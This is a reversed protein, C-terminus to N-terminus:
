SKYMELISFLHYVNHSLGYQINRIAGYLGIDKLIVKFNSLVFNIMRSQWMKDTSYTWRSTHFNHAPYQGKSKIFDNLFISTFQPSEGLSFDKGVRGSFLGTLYRNPSDQYPSYNDFSCVPFDDQNQTLSWEIQYSVSIRQLCLLSCSM